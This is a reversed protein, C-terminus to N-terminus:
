STVFCDLAAFDCQFAACESIDLQYTVRGLGSPVNAPTLRPFKDKVEFLHQGTVAFSHSNYQEAHSDFYGAEILLEDLRKRRKADCKARLTEILQPLSEGSEVEELQVCFLFLRELQVENLQWESNIKVTSNNPALTKVEAALTDSKFDQPANLPGFWIDLATGQLRPWFHERLFFLEGWLGREAEGSLGAGGREFFKQWGQLREVFAAVAVRDSDCPGVRALLDRCFTEFLDLNKEDRLMLGFQVARDQVTAFVEVGGLKPLLAPAPLAGKAVRLTFCPKGEPWRTGAFLARQNDDSVRRHQLGSGGKNVSETQSWWSALLSM